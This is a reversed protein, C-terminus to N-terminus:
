QTEDCDRLSLLIRSRERVDDIQQAQLMIASRQATCAAHRRDRERDAAHGDLCRAIDPEAAFVTKYLEPALARVEGATRAIADCRAAAADLSAAATLAWAHALADGCATPLARLVHVRADIAVAGQAHAFIEGRTRVCAATTRYLTFSRTQDAVRVHAVGDDPESAPIAFRVRGAGDTTADLVAGSPLALAVPAGALPHPCTERIADLIRRKRSTTDTHVAVRIPTVIATVLTLPSLAITGAGLAIIAPLLFVSGSAAMAPLATWIGTRERDIEDYIEARGRLCVTTRAATVTVHALDADVGTAIDWGAPEGEDIPASAETGIVVETTVHETVFLCGSALAGIVGAMVATGNM